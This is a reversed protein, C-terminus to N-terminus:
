SARLLTTLPSRTISSSLITETPGFYLPVASLSISAEPSMTIGPIIFVWVWTAMDTMFPTTSSREKGSKRSM